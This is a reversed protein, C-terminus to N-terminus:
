SSFEYIKKLWFYPRKRRYSELKYIAKWLSLIRNGRVMSSGTRDFRDPYLNKEGNKLVIHSSRYGCEIATAHCNDNYDGHPWCIHNVIKNLRSELIRKSESIEFRIRALYEDETERHIILKDKSRYLDYVQKTKFM